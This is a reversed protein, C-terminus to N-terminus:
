LAGYAKAERVRYMARFMEDAADYIAERRKLEALARERVEGKESELFYILSGAALGELKVMAQRIAEEDNMVRRIEDDKINEM